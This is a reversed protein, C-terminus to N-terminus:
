ELAPVERHVGLRESSPQLGGLEHQPGDLLRHGGKEGGLLRRRDAEGSEVQIVVRGGQGGEPHEVSGVPMKQWTHRAVEVVHEAVDM